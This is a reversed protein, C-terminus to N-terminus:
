NTEDSYSHIRTYRGAVETGVFHQNFARCPQQGLAVIAEM